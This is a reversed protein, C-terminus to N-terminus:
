FQVERFQKPTYGIRKKLTTVFHTVSNFGSAEAIDSISLKTNVLLKKAHNIRYNLLYEYPSYNTFKKFTRSFHYPSLNVYQAVDELTIDQKFHSEIFETARKIISEQSNTSTNSFENLEYLMKHIIVSVWHENITEKKAMNLIQEMGEALAPCNDIPFVCGNKQYMLEFYHGSANGDFHFWEFITDEEARYMHPKHCNLFILSNQKAIFEKEEYRVKMQGKRVILFLYSQWDDREIHYNVDCHFVGSYILHFLAEKAFDSPTHFYIESFPLVGLEKFQM